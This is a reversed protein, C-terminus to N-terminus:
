NDDAQYYGGFYSAQTGKVQNLVVGVLRAGSQQILNAASRVVDIRTSGYQTVLLVGDAISGAVLADSAGLIPPSDIVVLDFKKELDEILIRFRTSSVMESPNPPLPGSPNLTLGSVYARHSISQWSRQHDTVYNSIGSKNSVGFITAQSPRRLDADVLVVAKGGQAAAIALNAAVTSKGEDAIASTVVVSRLPREVSAFTLNTRLLRISEAQHSQPHSLTFLQADGRKAKADSDVPVSSLLPAHIIEAIDSYSKVTNDMYELLVIIGVAIIMGVVAGLLTSQQVNPSSQQSPVRAMDVPEIFPSSTTAQMSTRAADSELQAVMDTYTLRQQELNPIELDTATAIEADIVAIQENLFTIQQDVSSRSQQLRTENQGQIYVQFESVFGNATAAALEPSEDTVTIEILLTDGVTSVIVNNPAIEEIGVVNAVRDRMTQTNVLESYTETLRQSDQITSYDSSGVLAGPNVLFVATAQYLPTQRSVTFYASGSAVIILLVLIWWRRRLIRLLQLLDLEM